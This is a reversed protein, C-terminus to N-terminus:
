ALYRLVLLTPVGIWYALACAIEVGRRAARAAGEGIAAAGWVVTEGLARWISAYSLLLILTNAWYQGLTSFWPLPGELYYQGFTGGYAIHQHTYFLVLAPLTGAVPYKLALRLWSTPRRTTARLMGPRRRDAGVDVGCDHLLTLVPAPDRTALAIPLRGRERLRVTFGPTPLPVRWPRVTAIATCAVELELDSRRLRLRGDDYAATGTFARGIAWAMLAPLATGVVFSRVMIIPPVPPLLFLALVYTPLTALSVAVLAATVLRWSPSLLIVSCM